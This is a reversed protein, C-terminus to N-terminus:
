RADPTANLAISLGAFGFLPLDSQSDGVAVCREPGIGREACVAAAFAVKGDADFHRSVEGIVRGDEIGMECGTAGAFGYRNAFYDAALKWTITTIYSDIGHEHLTTVTDALGEITPADELARCIEGTQVGQWNAADAEAVEQNTIEGTDYRREFDAMRDLHGFAQWLHLCVTTSPLLTGDLDFCVFDYPPRAM